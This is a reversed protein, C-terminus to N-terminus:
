VDVDEPKLNTYRQLTTWNAHLSIRQVETINLGREFLRSVGDHRLDHFHLDEIGCVHCARTFLTSITKGNYPFVRGKRQGHKMIIKYASRPLKAWQKVGKKSPHKLDRILVTRNDHNIDDWEIRVIESQRRASYIAFWMMYLMWHGHFHRSLKWLEERTPRRDRQEPKAILGERRLVERASAFISMDTKLDIVGSMTKIVTHLWILDNAATQPKCEKNREIVHNILDKATLNHVDKKAIQRAQLKTIDFVKSRGEPKFREVYQALVDGVALYQTKQYVDQRQLEVERMMGWDRALKRTDFTRSERHVIIGDRKIVIEAKYAVSGDARKRATITAM